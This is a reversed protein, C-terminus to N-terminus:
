HGASLRRGRKKILITYAAVISSQLGCAQHEIRRLLNGIMGLNPLLDHILEARLGHWRQARGSRIVRLVFGGRRCELRFEILKRARVRLEPLEGQRMAQTTGFVSRFLM